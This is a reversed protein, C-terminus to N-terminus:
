PVDTEVAKAVPTAAPFLPANPKFQVCTSVAMCFFNMTGAFHIAMRTLAVPLRNQWFRRGAALAQGAVVALHGLESRRGDVPLGFNGFCIENVDNYYRAALACSISLSRATM